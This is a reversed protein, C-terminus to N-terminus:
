ATVVEEIPIRLCDIGTPTIVIYPAKEKREPFDALKIGNYEAM